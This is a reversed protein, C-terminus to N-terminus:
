NKLLALLDGKSKPKGESGLLWLAKDFVLWSIDASKCANPWLQKVANVNQTTM